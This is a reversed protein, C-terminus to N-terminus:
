SQRCSSSPIDALAAPDSEIYYSPPITDLTIHEAEAIELQNRYLFQFAERTERMHDELEKLLLNMKEALGDAVLSVERRYNNNKGKGSKRHQTGRGPVEEVFELRDYNMFGLPKFVPDQGNARVKAMKYLDSILHPFMMRAGKRGHIAVEKLSTFIVNELKVPRQKIMLYLLYAQDPTINISHSSPMINHSTFHLWIHTNNNINRKYIYIKGNENEKTELGTGAICMTEEIEKYPIRSNDKQGQGPLLIKQCLGPIRQPPPVIAEKLCSEQM